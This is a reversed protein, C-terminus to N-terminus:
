DVKISGYIKRVFFYCAFFGIAGTLLFLQMAFIFTYGFYLMASVFKTIQLKSFFYFISYLFMYLASAGSTLFARWWWHYDESCLQFYCMVITIEACTLILIFFVIFLFSFLFYFQHLWISSLIFFLEIFIAGFPLIGGMLISFVPRMYWVQDPIQRPIQNVRVPPEPVPKKFGFYAGFFTLPISVGFWLAFLELLVLFSVGGSSHEGKLVMNLIFFIMFNIGPYMFATLLTTKKWAKGKFMKYVRAAFYGAFIGMVVLLVVSATMLSGRNAPSLFGLVAFVMVVLSMAFVQVGSGVSVALLMPRSPPRFVDGHVLKWGTEEQAEESTEMERYRRFDAHLTRMMIMAVMGTLFLVIMLSNIISFWHIQSDTMMMYSDWRSAWRIPSPEWTVSYTWIVTSEKHPTLELEMPTGTCDTNESPWARSSAEVEFGVVRIGDYAPDEHYLITIDVHNNLLIKPADASNSTRRVSGLPFGAEYIFREKNNNDVINRKTASPLNDVIWHVRYEQEIKEIFEEVENSNYTTKELVKCPEPEKSVTIEYLSNEIVDGLLIEGLNERADVIKKPAPFPLDYYRYPLQTKVSTLKNVLLPVTDGEKYERPAVGPLYFGVAAQICFATVIVAVWSWRALKNMERNRM